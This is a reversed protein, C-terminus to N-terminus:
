IYVGCPVTSPVCQEDADILSILCIKANFVLKALLAIRDFNADKATHM